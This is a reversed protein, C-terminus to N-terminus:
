CHVHRSCPYDECQDKVAGGGLVIVSAGAVARTLDIKLNNLVGDSFSLEVTDSIDGSVRTSGSLVIPSGDDAASGISVKEFDVATAKIVEDFVLTLRGINMNLVASSLTPATNDVVVATAAKATTEADLVNDAMDKITGSTVLLFTNSTTTGLTVDAKINNADEAALTLVIVTGDVTTATGGNTISVANATNAPSAKMIKMTNAVFTNAKVTESFTLSLQPAGDMNLSFDTLTPKGNDVTFPEAEKADATLIADSVKGVLAMDTVAGGELVLL